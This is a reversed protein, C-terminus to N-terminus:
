SIKPDNVLRIITARVEVASDGPLLRCNVVAQATQPLANDAHGADLRTAVCTTRVLANDYPSETLRGMAKQDAPNKVIARMDLSSQGSTLDAMKTFYASTVETLRTPFQYKALRTLGEALRYIANEKTPRSSHGGPNTVELRFSQYMKESAQVSHLIPKGNKLEGGGGENIAFEADILERNNRLLWQVGNHEGGEEDATLAVIIDRKPVFGEQKLHILTAVWIAAMAKDDSTGRGYFYNGQETFLFPDMTWDERRAEVVDLHALLLIPKRNGGSGRLRAVLNGKRPAPSLVQVDQDPFGAAKLRAAMAQAAKTCDGAATDTTNIEILQKFIDRALVDRPNLSSQQLALLGALWMWRFVVM